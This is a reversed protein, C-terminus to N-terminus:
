IHPVRTPRVVLHGAFAGAIAFPLAVAAGILIMHWSAPFFVAGILLPVLSVGAVVGLGQVVWNKTWFGAVAGGFLAAICAIVLRIALIVSASKKMDAKAVVFLIPVLLGLRSFLWYTSIGIGIQAWRFTPSAEIEDYGYQYPNHWDIPPEEEITATTPGIATYRMRAGCEPCSGLSAEHNVYECERCEYPM